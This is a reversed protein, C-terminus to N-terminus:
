LVNLIIIKLEDCWDHQFIKAMWFFGVWLFRTKYIILLFYIDYDYHKQGYNFRKQEHVKKNTNLRAYKQTVMCIYTNITISSIVLILM